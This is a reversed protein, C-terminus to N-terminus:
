GTVWPPFVAFTEYFNLFVSSDSCLHSSMILKRSFSARFLSIFNTQFIRQRHETRSGSQREPETSLMSKEVKTWPYLNQKTCMSVFPYLNQKIYSQYLHICISVLNAFMNDLNQLFLSMGISIPQEVSRKAYINSFAWILINQITCSDKIHSYGTHPQNM